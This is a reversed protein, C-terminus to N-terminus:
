SLGSSLLVSTLKCSLSLSIDEVEFVLVCDGVVTLAGGFTDLNVGFTDLNVGFTANVV